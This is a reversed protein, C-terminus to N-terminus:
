KPRRELKKAIADPSPHEGTIIPIADVLVRVIPGDKSYGIDIDVYLENVHKLVVLMAEALDLVHDHWRRQKKFAADGHSWGGSVGLHFGLARTPSLVQSQPRENKLMECAFARNFGAAIREHGDHDPSKANAEKLILHEEVWKGTFPGGSV